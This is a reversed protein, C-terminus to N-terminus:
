ATVEVSASAGARWQKFAARVPALDLRGFEVDFQAQHLRDMVDDLSRREEIWRECQNHDWRSGLLNFARVADDQEAIRLSVDKGPYRFYFEHASPLQTPESDRPFRGVTTYEIEFFKSSNFFIPPEYQIPEGLMSRAALASQRKASYWIQEVFPTRRSLEIEACDGAAFVSPLSTRFGADVIVGRGLRPPTSVNRLWDIAPEVGISVGLACCEYRSGRQESFAGSRLRSGSLATADPANGSKPMRPETSPSRALVGKEDNPTLPRGTMSPDTSIGTVAGAADTEVATVVEGTVVNVGHHRLHGIVMASEAENLAIPWYWPERILFTVEMGAWRLCEVLELGILGGGVVVAKGGRRAVTECADLDQMSAFNVLGSRVNELGQWDPRRPHSGTALLLRDWAISQGSDLKLTRSHADLDQVWGRVRRIRQADYVGREYPELDRRSLRDMFSYMLATRSFFYDTEGSIVTIAARPDRRRVDLAATIGAVGNGVIVYDM